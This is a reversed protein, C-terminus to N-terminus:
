ILQVAAKECIWPYKELCDGSYVKAKYHLYACNQTPSLTIWDMRKTSLKTGDTWSWGDVGYSLGIWYSFRASLQAICVLKTKGKLMLLSANQSLCYDESEQWTALEISFYFCTDGGDWKWNVPCLSCRPGPLSLINADGTLCLRAKLGQLNESQGVPAKSGRLGLVTMGITLALCLLFLSFIVPCWAAFPLSYG